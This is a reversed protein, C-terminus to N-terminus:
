DRCKNRRKKYLFVNSLDNVVGQVRVITEKKNMKIVCGVVFYKYFEDNKFVLDISGDKNYRKKM